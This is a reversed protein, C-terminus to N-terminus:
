KSKNEGKAKGAKGREVSAKSCMVWLFDEKPVMSDLVKNVDSTFTGDVHRRSFAEGERDMESRSIYVHVCSLWQETVGYHQLSNCSLTYLIICLVDLYQIKMKI